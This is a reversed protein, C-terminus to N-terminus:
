HLFIVLNLARLAVIRRVKITIALITKTELLILATVARMLERRVMWPRRKNRLVRGAGLAALSRKKVVIIEMVRVKTTTVFITIM